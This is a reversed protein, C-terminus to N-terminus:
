ILFLFVKVSHDDLPLKEAYRIGRMIFCNHSVCMDVVELSVDEVCKDYEDLADEFRGQNKLIRAVNLNGIVRNGVENGCVFNLDEFVSKLEFEICGYIAGKCLNDFCKDYEGNLLNCKSLGIYDKADKFHIYAQEIMGNDFYYRGLQCPQSRGLLKELYKNQILGIWDPKTSDKKITLTTKNPKYYTQNDSIYNPNKPFTYQKTPSKLAELPENHITNVEFNLSDSPSEKAKQINSTISTMIKPKSLMLKENQLKSTDSKIALSENQIGNSEIILSKNQVDSGIILSKNPLEGSAIVLSEIQNEHNDESEVVLSDNIQIYRSESLNFESIFAENEITENTIESTQIEVITENVFFEDSQILNNVQIQESDIETNETAAEIGIEFTNTTGIDRHDDFIEFDENKIFIDDVVLESDTTVNAEMVGYYDFLNDNKDSEIRISKVLHFEEDEPFITSFIDSKSQQQPLNIISQRPSNVLKSLDFPSNTKTSTILEKENSKSSTNSATRTHRGIDDEKNEENHIAEISKESNNNYSATRTHRGILDM